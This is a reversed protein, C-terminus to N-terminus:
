EGQYQLFDQIFQYHMPITRKEGYHYVGLYGSSQWQQLEAASLQSLWYEQFGFAPALLVLRQVQLNRQALVAATLGGFSSGILVVPTPALPFLAEVQQIQRSLTLHSFDGQNLDPIKLEVKYTQLYSRLKQSKTSQPSSAFGHLYIYDAVLM